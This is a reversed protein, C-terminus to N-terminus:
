VRIMNHQNFLILLSLFFIKQFTLPHKWFLLRIDTEEGRREIHKNVLAQKYAMTYIVQIIIKGKGQGEDGTNWTPWGHSPVKHGDEQTSDEEIIHQM